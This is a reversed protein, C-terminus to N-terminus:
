VRAVSAWAACSASSSSSSPSDIGTERLAECLRPFLPEEALWLWLLERSHLPYAHGPLFGSSSSSSLPLSFVNSGCVDINYSMEDGEITFKACM